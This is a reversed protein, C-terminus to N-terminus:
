DSIVGKFKLIEIYEDYSLLCEIFKKFQSLSDFNLSKSMASLLSDGYEKHKTGRSIKTKIRTVKGQYYLYYIKHQSSRCNFGKEKLSKEIADRSLPM